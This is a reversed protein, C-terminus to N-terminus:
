SAMTIGTHLSMTNKYHVTQLPLTFIHDARPAETSPFYYDTAFPLADPDSIKLLNPSVTIDIGARSGFLDRRFIRTTWFPDQGKPGLFPVTPSGFSQVVLDESSNV